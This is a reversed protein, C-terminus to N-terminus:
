ILKLDFNLENCISKKEKKGQLIEKFCSVFFEDGFFNYQAYINVSIILYNENFVFRVNM